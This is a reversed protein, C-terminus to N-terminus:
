TGGVSVAIGHEDFLEAIRQIPEKEPPKVGHLEYTRDLQEWKPEGLRHYPLLDFSEMNKLTGVFDATARINEDSDNIGPILPMRIRLRKGAADMKRINELINENTGGTYKKHIVPDMHKIDILVLDLHDILSSLTEWNTVGCTEIATTLGNERCKILIARLFEAHLTPEGGSFTVGGGSTEFFARDRNIETYLEDVTLYRGVVNMSGAYCTGVCTGCVTCAERDIKIGNEGLTLANSPCQDACINCRICRHGVNWLEPEHSMSEPNQCWVCSLPCGKLFVLTRIGDGDHVAFRQIDFVLGTLGPKNKTEPDFHHLEKQWSM